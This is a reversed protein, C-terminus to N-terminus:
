NETKLERDKRSTPHKLSASWTQYERLCDEPSVSKKFAVRARYGYEKDPEIKHIVYQFDWAPRPFRDLKFKFLSFRIEDAPSHMRDFMILYVM